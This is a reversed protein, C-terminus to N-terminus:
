YRRIETAQDRPRQTECESSRNQGDEESVIMDIKMREIGM